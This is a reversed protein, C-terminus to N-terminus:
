FEHIARIQFEEKKPCDEAWAGTQFSLYGAFNVKAPSQYAAFYPIDTVFGMANKNNIMNLTQNIAEMKSYIELLENKAPLYWGDKYVSSDLAGSTAKFYQELWSFAPYLSGNYDSCSYVAQTFVKGSNNNSALTTDYGAANELMLPKLSTPQYLGIGLPKDGLSGTGDYFIVAIAAASQQESLKSGAVYPIVTGDNLIVDGVNCSLGAVPKRSFYGPTSSTDLRAFEGNTIQAVTYKTGNEGVLSDCHTFMDTSTINSPITFNSSAYITKLSSCGYFMSQVTKVSSTVFSSIDIETLSTCGSFIESMYQVNSTNLNGFDVHVLKTDYRFMDAMSTVNSTNFNDGFIVTELNSCGKFMSGITTINQTIIGSLDVYSITPCQAFIMSCEDGGLVIGAGTAFILSVNDYICSGNNTASIAGMLTNTETCRGLTEATLSSDYLTITIDKVNNAPMVNLLIEITEDYSSTYRDNIKAFQGDRETWKAYLTIASTIPAASFDFENQYEEETYWGDFIFFDKSPTKPRIAYAGNQVSQSAVTSGGMTNFTITVSNSPAKFTFYGPATKGEDIRAVSANVIKLDSFKTGSGGVLSNCENFMFDGYANNPIVFSNSAYITTLNTCGYFMAETTQVSDTDFSSIDVETLSTCNTFIERMEAVSSTDFDNAFTVSQLNACGKFLAHLTTASKVGSLDISVFQTGNEFAGENCYGFDINASEDIILHVATATSSKITNLLAGTANTTSGIDIAPISYFIVTHEAASLNLLADKTDNYNDYFTDDIKAYHGGSSTKLTFYGEDGEGGDLKAYTKDTKKLVSFKSGSGGELNDCNAFMNTDKDSGVSTIVFRHSAYITTLNTCGEFMSLMNNVKATDCNSLDITELSSCGYFLYQMDGINSTDFKSLDISTLSLCNRFVGELTQENMKSMDFNDLFEFSTLSRCDAFFNALVEVSKLGSIDISVFNACGIFTESNAGAVLEIGSNKAINFNVTVNREQTDSLARIITGTLSGRGIQEATALSYLTITIESNDPINEITQMTREFSPYYTDNIKSYAWQAYFTVTNISDLVYSYTDTNVNYLTESAGPTQKLSWGLFVTGKSTPLESVSVTQGYRYTALSKPYPAVSLVEDKYMITVTKRPYYLNIVRSGDGSITLARAATVESSSPANFGYFPDTKNTTSTDKLEFEVLEDTTGTKSETDDESALEYNTANHSNANGNVKQKWHKVVYPTDNRATFQATLSKNGTSGKTIGTIASDNEDVWGDFTYGAKTMTPLTITASKRTYKQAYVYGGEEATGSNLEWTIDYTTDIAWDISASTELGRAIRVKGTWTNLVPLTTNSEAALFNVTLNYDGPLLSSNEYVVTGSTLDTYTKSDSDVTGTLTLEASAPNGYTINWTIKLSGLTGEPPTLTFKLPETTDKTIEATKTDSFTISNLQATLEFSYNGTQLAYPFKSYFNDWVTVGNDPDATGSIVIANEEDNEWICKLSVSTLKSLLVSDSEPVITSRAYSAKNVTIYGYEIQPTQQLAQQEKQPEEITLEPKNLFSCSFLAVSFVVTAFAKIFAKTKM